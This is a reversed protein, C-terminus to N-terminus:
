EAARSIEEPKRGTAASIPSGVCSAASWPSPLHASPIPAWTRISHPASSIQSSAWQILLHHSSAMYGPHGVNTCYPSLKIGLENLITEASAPEQPLPESFLENTTRPEADPFVRTEAIHDLYESLLDVVRHGVDRFEKADM